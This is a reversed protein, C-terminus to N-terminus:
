FKDYSARSSARQKAVAEAIRKRANEEHSATKDFTIGSDQTVSCHTSSIRQEMSEMRKSRLFKEKLVNRDNNTTAPPSPVLTNNNLKALSSRKQMALLQM